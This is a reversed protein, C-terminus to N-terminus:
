VNMKAEVMMLRLEFETNQQGQMMQEIEMETLQQGQIMSQIELETVSQGQMMSELESDTIMQGLEGNQQELRTLPDVPIPVNLLEDIKEKSLGEVWEGNVLKAQFLGDIPTIETCDSPIEYIPVSNEFDIPDIIKPEIYFGEESIRYVQKM